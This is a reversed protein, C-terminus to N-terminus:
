EAPICGGCHVTWGPATKLGIGIGVTEGQRLMNARHGPSNMWSDIPSAPNYNGSSLGVFNAGGAGSNGFVSGAVALGGGYPGTIHASHLGLGSSFDIGLDSMIQTHFRAAMMLNESIIVPSLGHEARIENLLRVAELEFANPGGLELYEAIWRNMEPITLVRDPLTIASQTSEASERWYDNGTEAAVMVNTAVAVFLTLIIFATKGYSLFRVKVLASDFVSNFLNM